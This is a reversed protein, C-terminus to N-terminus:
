ANNIELPRGESSSRVALIVANMIDCAQEIPITPTSKGAVCETFHRIEGLFPNDASGSYYEEGGATTIKVPLNNKGISLNGETGVVLIEVDAYRQWRLLQNYEIVLISGNKMRFNVLHYNPTEMVNDRDPYHQATVAYVSEPTTGMLFCMLDTYHIGNHLFQGLSEKKRYFSGNPYNYYTGSWTHRGFVPSGIKGERILQQAKAYREEWRMVMAPMVVVGSTKVSVRIDEVEETTMALPKECLVNIGKKVAATTYEYHFNDPACIDLIDIEERELMEYLNSHYHANYLAATKKGSDRDVDCLCVINHGLLIYAELHRAAIGACAGVIGIKLPKM